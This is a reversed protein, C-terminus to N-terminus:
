RQLTCICTTCLFCYLLLITVFCSPLCGFLLSKCLVTGPFCYQYYSLALQYQEAAKPYLGEQFLYNGKARHKECFAKKEHEKMEFIKKEKSHEHAHTHIPQNTKKTLSEVKKKEREVEDNITEVENWRDWKRYIDNLSNQDPHKGTSCNRNSSGVVQGASTSKEVVELRQQLASVRQTSTELSKQAERAGITHINGFTDEM